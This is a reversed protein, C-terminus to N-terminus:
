RVILPELGLGFYFHVYNHMELWLAPRLFDNGLTTCACNTMTLQMRNSVSKWFLAYYHHRQLMWM